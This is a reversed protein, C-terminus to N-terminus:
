SSRADRDLCGAPVGRERLRYKQVKGNETRPLEAVLAIFRPVAFKPLRAECFRALEAAAAGGPQRLVVAAMVEDEALESRVPRTSSLITDSM